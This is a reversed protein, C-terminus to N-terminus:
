EYIVWRKELQFYILMLAVIVAALIMAQASALGM